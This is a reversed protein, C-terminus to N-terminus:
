WKCFSSTHFEPTAFFLAMLAKDATSNGHAEQFYNYANTLVQKNGASLRGGTLITDLDDIKEEIEGGYPQYTLRGVSSSYDGVDRQTSIFPGFGGDANSLGFNMLSFFGNTMGVVSNMSLLESEPAVMDVDSFFGPPSYDSSFFSFQDPPQFVM